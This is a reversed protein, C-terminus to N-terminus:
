RYSDLFTRSQIFHPSLLRNQLQVKVAQKPISEWCSKRAIFPCKLAISVLCFM